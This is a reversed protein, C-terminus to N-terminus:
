GEEARSSGRPTVCTSPAPTCPWKRLRGCFSLGDPDRRLGSQGTSEAAESSRRSCRAPRWFGRDCRSVRKVLPAFMAGQDVMEHLVGRYIGQAVCHARSILRSWSWLLADPGRRELRESPTRLEQAGDHHPCSRGPGDDAFLRDAAYAAAQEHRVTVLHITPRAIAVGILALNHVGPFASSSM